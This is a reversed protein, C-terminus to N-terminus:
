IPAVNYPSPPPPAGEKRRPPKKKGAQPVGVGIPGARRGRPKFFDATAVGKNEKDDLSFDESANM